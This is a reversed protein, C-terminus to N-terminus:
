LKSKIAKILIGARRATPIKEEARPEWIFM